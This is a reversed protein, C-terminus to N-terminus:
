SDRGRLSDLVHRLDEGVTADRRNWEGAVITATVDNATAVLPWRTPDVGALRASSPEVVVIDAPDGTALGASGPGPTSTQRPLPEAAPRLSEVGNRTGIKWLAECGVVGRTGTALRATSELMRLEAFPDTVVDEDTGIAMRVGAEQLDGIRAIGDGLDAETTPCLSVITNSAAIMAIDEDSLHTAHVVTTRDSLVGARALVATPTLGHAALCEANERPQESVHIHIPVREPLESVATAMEDPSVARVSHLAAGMTALPSDPLANRLAHWRELWGEVSGDGFRAQDADLPAGPGAHLYCTDLVTIRIGADIAANVLALEMAHDRYPTGDPRHHVYHFEGVSTYGAAVMEAFAARALRYYSDPNLRNALRYMETRWSWFDEGEGAGRLGRHFVHSHTNAFGPVAIGNFTHRHPKTDTTVATIIGDQSEVRVNHAIQGKVLAKPFFWENM